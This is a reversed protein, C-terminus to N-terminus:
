VPRAALGPGALGGSAAVVTVSISHLIAECADHVHILYKGAPLPSGDAYAMPSTANFSTAGSPAAEWQSTIESGNNPYEVVMRFSANAVAGGLDTTFNSGAAAPQTSTGIISVYPAPEAISPRWPLTANASPVSWASSQTNGGKGSVLTWHWRYQLQLSGYSADAMVALLSTSLYATGASDFATTTAVSKTASVGVWGPGALTLTSPLHFVTFMGGTRLPFHGLLSPLYVRTGNDAASYNVASVELTYGVSSGTPVKQGLNGLPIALASPADSPPNCPSTGATRAM